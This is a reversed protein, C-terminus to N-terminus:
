RKVGGFSGNEVRLAVHPVPTALLLYIYRKQKVFYATLKGYIIKLGLM